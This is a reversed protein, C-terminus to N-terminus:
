PVDKLLLVLLVGVKGDAKLGKARQFSKVANQVTKTFLQDTNISDVPLYKRKALLLMLEVVDRGRM